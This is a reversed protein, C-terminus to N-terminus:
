SQGKLKDRETAEVCDPCPWTAYGIGGLYADDCQGAGGCTKCAATSYGRNFLMMAFNGVDVPDGKTVHDILLNRLRNAHCKEKDQWGGYGKIRQKAMKAKMAAAFIDVAIDDPHPSADQVLDTPQEPQTFLQQRIRCSEDAIRTALGADKKGHSLLGAATLVDTLFQLTRSDPVSTAPPVPYLPALERLKTTDIM